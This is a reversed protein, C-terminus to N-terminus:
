CAAKHHNSIKFYTTREALSLGLSHPTSKRFQAIPVMRCRRVKVWSVKAYKVAKFTFLASLPWGKRFKSNYRKLLLLSLPKKLLLLPLPKKILVAPKAQIKIKIPKKHSVKIVGEQSLQVFLVFMVVLIRASVNM